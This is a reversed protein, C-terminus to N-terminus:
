LYSRDANVSSHQLAPRVGEVIRCQRESRPENTWQFEEDSRQEILARAEEPSHAEVFTLCDKVMGSTVVVPYTQRGGWTSLAPEPAFFYRLNYGSAHTFEAYIPTITVRYAGGMTPINQTLFVPNCEHGNTEPSVRFSFDDVRQRPYGQTGLSVITGDSIIRM